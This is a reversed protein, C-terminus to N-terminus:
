QGRYEDLPGPSPPHSKGIAWLARQATDPYGRRELIQAAQEVTDNEAETHTSM